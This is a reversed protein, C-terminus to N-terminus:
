ARVRIQLSTAALRLKLLQFIKRLARKVRQLAADTSIGLAVGAARTSMGHDHVLLFAARQAPCLREVCSDIAEKMERLTARACPCDQEPPAAYTGFFEDSVYSGRVYRVFKRFTTLEKHLAIGNLWRKLADPRAPRFSARGKWAGLWIEQLIDDVPFCRQAQAWLRKSSDRAFVSRTAACSRPSRRTTAPPQM